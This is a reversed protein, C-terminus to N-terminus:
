KDTEFNACSEEIEKEEAKEQELSTQFPKQGKLWQFEYAKIYTLFYKKSADDILLNDQLPM